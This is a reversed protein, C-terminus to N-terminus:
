IEPSSELAHTCTNKTIIFICFFENGVKYQILFNTRNVYIHVLQTNNECM